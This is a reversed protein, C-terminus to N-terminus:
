RADFAAKVEAPIRGRESVTFGNARAWERIEGSNGGSARSSGGSRRSRGGGSRGGVRRAHGVWEAFSDRLKSANESSLDIEYSVGDLSFSVTEDATGGDLDDLLVVQVKQAM